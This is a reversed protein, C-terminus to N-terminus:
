TEAGSIHRRLRLSQYTASGSALFIDQEVQGQGQGQGHGRDQNEWM